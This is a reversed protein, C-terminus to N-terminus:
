VARGAHAPRGRNSLDSTDLLQAAMRRHDQPLWYHELIDENALGKELFQYNVIPLQCNFAKTAFPNAAKGSDGQKTITVIRRTITWLLLSNTQNQSQLPVIKNTVQWSFPFKKTPIQQSHIGVFGLL